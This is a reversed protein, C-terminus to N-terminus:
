FKSLFQTKQAANLVKSRKVDERTFGTKKALAVFNKHHIHLRAFQDFKSMTTSQDSSVETTPQSKKETTIVPPKSVAEHPATTNQQELMYMRLATFAATALVAITKKPHNTVLQGVSSHSIYGCCTDWTSAPAQPAPFMKTYVNKGYQYATAPVIAVASLMAKKSPPLLRAWRALNKFPHQQAYRLSEQAQKLGSKLRDACLSKENITKLKESVIRSKDFLDQSLLKAYHQLTNSDKILANIKQGRTTNQNAVAQFQKELSVVKTYLKNKELILQAVQNAHMSEVNKLKQLVSQYRQLVLKHHKRLNNVLTDTMTLNSGQQAVTDKLAHTMHHYKKIHKTRLGDQIHKVVTPSDLVVNRMAIFDPSNQKMSSLITYVDLINILRQGDKVSATQLTFNHRKAKGVKDWMHLVTGDDLPLSAVCKAVSESQIHAFSLLLLM